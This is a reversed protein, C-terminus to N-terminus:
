AAPCLDWLHPWHRSIILCYEASIPWWSSDYPKGDPRLERCELSELGDHRFEVQVGDVERTITITKPKVPMWSNEIIARCALIHKCTGHCLFGKCECTDGPAGCQVDYNSAEGDTGKDLKTLRFARSGGFDTPFETVLYEVSARATDITLRGRGIGTATFKLANHRSSKQAPLLEVCPKGVTTMKSVSTM